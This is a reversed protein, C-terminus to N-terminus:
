VLASAAGFAAGAAGASGAGRAGGWAARGAGWDHLAALGAQELKSLPEPVGQHQQDEDRVTGPPGQMRRADNQLGIPARM